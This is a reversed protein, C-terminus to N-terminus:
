EPVIAEVQQGVIFLWDGLFTRALARRAMVIGDIGARIPAPPAESLEPRHLLGLLDGARVPDGLSVLSEFVGEEKAVSYCAEPRVDVIIPRQLSARSLNGAVVGLSSLVNRIGARCLALPERSVEGSGGYEGSIGIVGQRLMAGDIGVDVGMTKSGFLMCYAAGFASALELRQHNAEEDDTVVVITASLFHLLVGGGHIDVAYDARSYLQTEIFHALQRTFTGDASGPFVRNLNQNDIPCTRQGAMCAPTNTAPMIIVRGRVDKPNLQRALESLAVQGEYEDGHVGATLVVTPGDGNAVSTLPSAVPHGTRDDIRTRFSVVGVQKGPADLDISSQWTDM